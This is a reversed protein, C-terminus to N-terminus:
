KIGVLLLTGQQTNSLFIAELGGLGRRPLLVIALTEGAQEIIIALDAVEAAFEKAAFNARHDVIHREHV